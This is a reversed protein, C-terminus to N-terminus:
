AGRNIYVRLKMMSKRISLCPCKDNYDEIIQIRDKTVLKYFPTMPLM